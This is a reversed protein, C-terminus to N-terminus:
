KFSKTLQIAGTISITAGIGITLYNFNRHSTRSYGYIEPQNKDRNSELYVGMASLILGTALIVIGSSRLEVNGKLKLDLPALSYYTDSFMISQTTDVPNSWTIFSVLTLLSLIIYRM